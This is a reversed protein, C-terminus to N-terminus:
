PPFLNYLNLLRKLLLYVTSNIITQFNYICLIFVTPAIVVIRKKERKKVTDQLL